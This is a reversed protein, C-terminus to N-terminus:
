DVLEFRSFNYMCPLMTDGFKVSFTGADLVVTGVAGEEIDREWGGCIGYVKVKDGEFIMIDNEEDDFGSYEEISEPEIECWEQWRDDFGDDSANELIYHHGRCKVYFGIACEGNSKAKGRFLMNRM